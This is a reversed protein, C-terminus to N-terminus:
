EFRESVFLLLKKTVQTLSVWYTLWTECSIELCIWRHSKQPSPFNWIPIAFLGSIRNQRDFRWFLACPKRKRFFLFYEPIPWPKACKSACVCMRSKAEQIFTQHRTVKKQSFACSRHPHWFTPFQRYKLITYNKFQSRLEHQHYKAFRGSILCKKSLTQANRGFVSQPIIAMACTFISIMATIKVDSEYM